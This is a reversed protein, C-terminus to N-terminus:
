RVGLIGVVLVELGIVLVCLLGYPLAHRMVEGEGIGQGVVSVGILAKDPAVGSGISGGLTQAAAVLVTSLALARSAYLQLPGFMVNSNTNSGTVFAGLLGIFPAALLYLRRGLTEAAQALVAAMGSDAIVLAMMVMLSVAVTTGTTQRVTAQWARGAAGPKWLDRRSYVLFTVLASLLLLPAPHGVLQIPAYAASASVAFGQATTQAPYALAFRLGSAHAKVAPVQATISFVTLLAYPLFAWRFSLRDSRLDHNPAAPAKYLSTRGAGWLILTGLLGPLMSSVPAAGLVNLLWMLADMAAAAVLVLPAARRVGSWGAAIHAVSLGTLLIPLFFMLALPPGLGAGDLGMVLGITFFSSGMSGFTIAWSHGIMAAAIARVPSFGALVMLPAVVAVPVGFGAIGQMFGSFTWALLLALLLPDGTSSMIKRAIVKVAGLDDALSYLFVAAWVILMVLLALSLGKASASALLVPGAGFLAMAGTVAILWALAAARFARWRLWLIGGLLALVPAAAVLVRILFM